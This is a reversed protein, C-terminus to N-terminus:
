ITKIAGNYAKEAKKFDKIPYLRLDVTEKADNDVVRTAAKEDGKWLEYTINVDNDTASKIMKMKYGGLGAPKQEFIKRFTIM